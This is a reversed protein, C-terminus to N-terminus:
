SHCELALMSAHNIGYQFTSSIQLACNGNEYDLYEALVQVTNYNCAETFGVTNWYKYEVFDCYACM